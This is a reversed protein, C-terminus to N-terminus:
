FKLALGGNVIYKGYGAEIYFGANKSFNFKTGISIQYALTSPDSIQAAKSGDPNLYDQKWNNIGIATRIYPSVSTANTPLYNMMNLMVSWNELTGSFEPLQQSAAYYYYPVEVKGYTGMVGISSFRSFQFDLAATVPGKQTVTGRYYEAFDAFHEKDLNPYSYGVSLNLTPKFTNQQRGYRYNPRPQRPPPVPRAYRPGYGRQIYIGTGWQAKSQLSLLSFLTVVVTICKKM